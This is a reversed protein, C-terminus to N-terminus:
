AIGFGAVTARSDDNMGALPNLRLKQAGAVAEPTAGIFKALAAASFRERRLWYVPNAGAMGLMMDRPEYPKSGEQGAVWIGFARNWDVGVVTMQWYEDLSPPAALERPGLEDTKDKTMM